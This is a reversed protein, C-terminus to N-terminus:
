FSDHKPTKPRPKEGKRSRPEHTSLGDHRPLGPKKEVRRAGASKAVENLAAGAAAAPLVLTGLLGLYRIALYLALGGLLLAGILLYVRWNM